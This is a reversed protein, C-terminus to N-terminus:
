PSPAFGSISVPRRPAAPPRGSSDSALADRLADHQVVDFGAGEPAPPHSSRFAPTAHQSGPWFEANQLRRPREPRAGQRDAAASPGAAGKGATSVQSVEDYRFGDVHCENLFFAANDRLFQASPITGFRLRRTRGGRGKPSTLSENNNQGM